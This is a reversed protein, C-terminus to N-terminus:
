RKGGLVKETVEVNGEFIKIAGRKCNKVCNLCLICVVPKKLKPHIFIADYKCVEVCKGCGDCLEYDIVIRGGRKM